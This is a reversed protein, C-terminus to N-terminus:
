IMRRSYFMLRPGPSVSPCVVVHPDVHPVDPTVRTLESNPIFKSKSRERANSRCRATSGSEREDGVMNEEMGEGKASEAM